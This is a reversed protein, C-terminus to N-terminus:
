SEPDEEVDNDELIALIEELKAEIRMLALIIASEDDWDIEPEDCFLPITAVRSATRVIDQAAV